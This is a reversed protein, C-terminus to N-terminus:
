VSSFGYLPPKPSGALIDCPHSDYPNYMDKKTGKEQQWVTHLVALSYRQNTIYHAKQGKGEGGRCELM